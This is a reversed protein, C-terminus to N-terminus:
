HIKPSYRQGQKSLETFNPKFPLNSNPWALSPILSKYRSLPCKSLMPIQKNPFYCSKQLFKPSTQNFISFKRPKLPSTTKRNESSPNINSYIFGECKFNQSSAKTNNDQAIEDFKYNPSFFKRNKYLAKLKNDKQFQFDADKEVRSGNGAEESKENLHYIKKQFSTVKLIPLDSKKIIQQSQLQKVLNIKEQIVEIQPKGINKRMEQILELPDDKLEKLGESTERDKDSTYYSTALSDDAPIMEQILPVDKLSKEFVSSRRPANIKFSIVSNSRSICDELLKRFGVMREKHKSLKGEVHFILEIEEDSLLINYKNLFAILESVKIFGESDLSKKLIKIRLNNSSILEQYIQDIILQVLAKKNKIDGNPKINEIIDIFEDEDIYGNKDKDITLFIYNINKEDIELDLIAGCFKTFGSIKMKYNSQRSLKSCRHFAQIYDERLMRVARIFDLINARQLKNSFNSINGSSDSESHTISSSKDFLSDLQKLIQPKINVRNNLNQTMRIGQELFLLDKKPAFERMVKKQIMKKLQKRPNKLLKNMYPKQKQILDTIECNFIKACSALHVLGRKVNCRLYFFERIDKKSIDALSTPLEEQHNMMVKELKSLDLYFEPPTLLKKKDKIDYHINNCNDRLIIERRKKVVINTYIWDWNKRLTQILESEEVIQKKSMKLKKQSGPTPLEEDSSGDLYFAKVDKIDKKPIRTTSSRKFSKSNSAEQSNSAPSFLKNKLLLRKDIITNRGRHEAIENNNPTKPISNPYSSNNSNIEQDNPPKSVKIPAFSSQKKTMEVNHSRKPSELYIEKREFKAKQSYHSLIEM